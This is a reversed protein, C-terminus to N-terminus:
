PKKGDTRVAAGTYLNMMEHSIRLSAYPFSLPFIALLSFAKVVLTRKTM